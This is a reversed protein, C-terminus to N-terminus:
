RGGAFPLAEVFPFITGESWWFAPSMVGAFGFIDPQTLLAYLSISGGLSSGMVGTHIRDPLTRFSKDILPKVNQALFDVYADAGGGGYLSHNHASYDVARGGGSNAIGVVIAEIGEASLGEMTEDVQWEGSYSGFADFINQGDHMYLV